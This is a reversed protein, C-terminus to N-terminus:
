INVIDCFNEFWGYTAKEDKSMKNWCRFAQFNSSSIYKGLAVQIENRELQKCKTGCIVYTTSNTPLGQKKFTQWDLKYSFTNKM